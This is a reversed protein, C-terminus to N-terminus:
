EMRLDPYGFMDIVTNEKAFLRSHTREGLREKIEQETYNTSFVTPRQSEYRLNVVEFIVEKRWDSKGEGASGVDDLIFFEHDIQYEIEQRYDGQMDFSRRIREM